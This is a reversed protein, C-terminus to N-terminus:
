PAARLSEVIRVFSTGLVKWTWQESLGAAHKRFNERFAPELGRILARDLTEESAPNYLCEGHLAPPVLSPRIGVNGTVIPTGIMLGLMTRHSSKAENTPTADVPDVLLDVDRALATDEPPTFRGLFHIRDRAVSQAADRRLSGEDIGDGAIVLHTKGITRDALRTFAKLLLDVRHGSAISLSGVYLIIRADSPLALRERLRSPPVTPIDIGTPLFEVRTKPSQEQFYHVLFPSCATVIEAARASAKELREAYWRVVPPFRSAAGELDDADLILPVGNRRAYALVPPANQLQPKTLIIVDARTNRLAQTLANRGARYRYWTDHVSPTKTSTARLSPGVLRVRVGLRETTRAFPPRDNGSLSLVEVSHNAAQVAAGLPLIRGIVSSREPPLAAVFVVRM